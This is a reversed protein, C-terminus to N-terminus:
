FVEDNFLSVTQETHIISPDEWHGCYLYNLIQVAIDQETWEHPEPESGFRELITRNQEETISIFMSKELERLYKATITM